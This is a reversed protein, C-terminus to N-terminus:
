GITYSATSSQYVNVVKIKIYWKYERNGELNNFSILTSIYGIVHLSYCPTARDTPASLMIYNSANAMPQMM